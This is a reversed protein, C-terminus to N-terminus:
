RDIGRAGSAPYHDLGPAIRVADDLDTRRAIAGGIGIERHDIRARDGAILRKLGARHDDAGSRPARDDGGPERGRADVRDHELLPASEVAAVKM